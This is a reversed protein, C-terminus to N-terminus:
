PGEERPGDRGACIRAIAEALAAAGANRGRLNPHSDWPARGRFGRALSGPYGGAGARLLGHLDLIHVSDPRDVATLWDAFDSARRAASPRTRLATLPPPTLLLFTCPLRSCVDLVERYLDKREALELDSRLNSAPYCSKHIVLDFATIKARTPEHDSVSLLNLLGDPDTNDDPIKVGIDAPEGDPGRTGLRTYDVDWLQLAATRGDRRLRDRLRGDIILQRGVSHHIFLAKV